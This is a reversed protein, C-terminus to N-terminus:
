SMVTSSSTSSNPTVRSCTSATRCHAAWVASAGAEKGYHRNEEIVPCRSRKGAKRISRWMTVSARARPHSFNSFPSNSFSASAAPKSTSTVVSLFRAIPLIKLAALNSDHHQTLPSPSENSWVNRLDDCRHVRCRRSAACFNCHGESLSQRTKPPALAVRRQQFVNLHDPQRNKRARVKPM